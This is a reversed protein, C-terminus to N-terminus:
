SRGELYTYVSKYAKYLLELSVRKNSRVAQVESESLGFVNSLLKNSASYDQCLNVLKDQMRIIDRTTTGAAYSAVNCLYLVSKSSFIEAKMTALIIPHLGLVRSIELCMAPEPFCRKNYWLSLVCRTTGVREAFDTHSINNTEVYKKILAPLSRVSKEQITEMQYKLTDFESREPIERFIRKFGKESHQRLEETGSTLAQTYCEFLRQTTLVPAYFDHDFLDEFEAITLGFYSTCFEKMRTFAKLNFEPSIGLLEECNYFYNGIAYAMFRIFKSLAIDRQGGQMKSTIVDALVFQHVGLVDSLKGTKEATPGYVEREWHSITSHCTGVLRGIDAQTYGLEKRKDRLLKCFSYNYKKMCENQQELILDLM